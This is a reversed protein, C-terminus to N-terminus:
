FDKYKVSLLNPDKEDTSGNLQFLSDPLMKPLHIIILPWVFTFM